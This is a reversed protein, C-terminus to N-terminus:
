SHYDQDIVGDIIGYVVGEIPSMYRDRDIDRKVQEITRGSESPGVVLSSLHQLHQSALHSQPARALQVADYIAMTASLSGGSSNVFLRIDKTPDMADLLLLQSIIADAVFDDVSTGLFVIRERLLLGIVDSEAGRM